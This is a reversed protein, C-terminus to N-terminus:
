MRRTLCQAIFWLAQICVLAKALGNAKSKSEIEEESLNPIVNRGIEHESLMILYEMLRVLFGLRVTKPLYSDRPNPFTEQFKLPRVPEQNRPMFVGKFGTVAKKAISPPNPLAFAKNVKHMISFAQRRQYWATYAIM